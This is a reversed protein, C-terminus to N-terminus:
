RDGEAGRRRTAAEPEDAAVPEPTAAEAPAPEPDTAVGNTQVAEPQEPEPSGAEDGIPEAPAPQEAVTVAAVPEPDDTASPAAPKTDETM